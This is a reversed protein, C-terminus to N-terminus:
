ARIPARLRLDLGAAPTFSEGVSRADKKEMDVRDLLRLTQASVMAIDQAAYQNLRKQEDTFLGEGFKERFSANQWDTRITNLSTNNLNTDVATGM